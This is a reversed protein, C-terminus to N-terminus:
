YPYITLIVLTIVILVDCFYWVIDDVLLQWADWNETQRLQATEFIGDRRYCAQPDSM